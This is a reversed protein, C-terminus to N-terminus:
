LHYEKFVHHQTHNRIISNSFFEHSFRSSPSFWAFLGLFSPLHPLVFPSLICGWKAILHQFLQLLPCYADWDCVPWPPHLSTDKITQYRELKSSVQPPRPPAASIVGLKFSNLKASFPSHGDKPTEKRFPVCFYLPLSIPTSKHSFIHAKLSLLRMADKCVPTFSYSFHLIFLPHPFSLTNSFRYLGKLSLFHFRSKM